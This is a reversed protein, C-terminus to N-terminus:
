QKSTKNPLTKIETLVKLGNLYIFVGGEDVSMRFKEKGLNESIYDTAESIESFDIQFDSNFTVSYKITGVIAVGSGFIKRIIFYNKKEKILTISEGAWGNDLHFEVNIYDKIEIRTEQTSAKFTSILIFLLLLFLRNM